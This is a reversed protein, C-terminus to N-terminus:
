IEKPTTHNSTPSTELVSWVSTAAYRSLLEDPAAGPRPEAAVKVVSM